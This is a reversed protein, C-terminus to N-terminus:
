TMVLLRGLAVARGPERTLPATFEQNGNMSPTLRGVVDLHNARPPKIPMTWKNRNIQQQHMQATEGKRQHRHPHPHNCHSKGCNSCVSRPKRLIGLIYHPLDWDV